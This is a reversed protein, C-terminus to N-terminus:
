RATGRILLGLGMAMRLVVGSVGEGWGVAVGAEATEVAVVVGVGGWVVGATAAACAAGFWEPAACVRLFATEAAFGVEFGSIAGAAYRRDGSGLDFEGM